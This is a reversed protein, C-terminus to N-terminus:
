PRLGRQDDDRATGDCTRLSKLWVSDDYPPTPREDAM